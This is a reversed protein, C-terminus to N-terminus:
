IISWNTKNAKRIEKQHTYNVDPIENVYENKM